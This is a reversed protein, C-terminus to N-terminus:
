KEVWEAPLLEGGAATLVARWTAETLNAPVGRVHANAMMGTTLGRRADLRPGIPLGDDADLDQPKTWPVPDKAVVLLLTNATMDPVDNLSHGTLQGDRGRLNPDFLLGRGVVVQYATLGRPDPKENPRQYTRPIRPLLKLNHPSDWPEDLRFERFLDGEEIYPLLAVRWSLLPEGDPACFAAARPLRYGPQNDAYSHFAVGIQKLHGYEQMRFAAARVRHIEPLLVGFVLGGILCGAGVIGLALILVSSPGKDRAASLDSVHGCTPCTIRQGLHSEHAVLIRGCPCRYEIM